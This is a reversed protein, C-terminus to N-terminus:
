RLKIAVTTPSVSALYGPYKPVLAKFVYSGKAMGKKFYYKYQWKPVSYMSYVVRNSSYTWYAKGPKKVYAVIVKGVLGAPTIDGALIPTQGIRASTASTRISISTAQDAPLTWQAYVTVNATVPTSNAFATGSGNAATNWGTFTYGTRTPNAPLKAGLATNYTTTATSSGPTGGNGNFIVTPTLTGGPPVITWSLTYECWYMQGPGAPGMVFTPYIDITYTGAVAAVYGTVAGPAGIAAACDAAWAGGPAKLTLSGAGSTAVFGLALTSGNQLKVTYRDAQATSTVYYWVGDSIPSITSQLSGRENYNVAAHAVAPACFLAAACAVVLLGVFSRRM